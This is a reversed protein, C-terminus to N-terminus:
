GQHLGSKKKTDSCWAIMCELMVGRVVVFLSQLLLLLPPPPM